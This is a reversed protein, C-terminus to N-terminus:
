HPKHKQSLLVSPRRHRTKQAHMHLILFVKNGRSWWCCVCVCVHVDCHLSLGVLMWSADAILVSEGRVWPDDTVNVLISWYEANEAAAEACKM